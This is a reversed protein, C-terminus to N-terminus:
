AFPAFVTRSCQLLGQQLLPLGVTSFGQRLLVMSLGDELIKM